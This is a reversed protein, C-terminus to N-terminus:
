TQQAFPPLVAARLRPDGPGKRAGAIRCGGSLLDAGTRARPAAKGELSSDNAHHPGRKGPVIRSIAAPKRMEPAM